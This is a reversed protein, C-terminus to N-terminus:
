ILFFYKQLKKIKHLFFNVVMIINCYILFIKNSFHYLTTPAYYWKKKQKICKNKNINKHYSSVGGNM